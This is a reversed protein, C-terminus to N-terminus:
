GKIPRIKINRFSVVGHDGQIAIRGEALKGFQSYESFKSKKVRAWFDDSGYKYTYFMAGNMDTQCQKPDVVIRLHNWEGAPKVAKAVDASPAYLQYLYGSSEVGEAPEHDYIQVEPGSHWVADGDDAVRFMIGSNGGKSVNFDLTLEFWGFKGESVIDGANEPDSSTLVGDSVTWGPRVGTAKFNHWGKTSKGDFLLQWGHKVEEPTLSNQSTQVLVLSAILTLM